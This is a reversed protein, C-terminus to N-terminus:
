ARLGVESRARIHKPVDKPAALGAQARLRESFM